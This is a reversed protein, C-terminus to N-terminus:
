NFEAWLGMWFWHLTFSSCLHKSETLTGTMLDSEDRSRSSGQSRDRTNEGQRHFREEQKISWAHKDLFWNASALLSPLLRKLWRRWNSKVKQYCIIIYVLFSVIIPTARVLLKCQRTLNITDFLLYKVTAPNNM